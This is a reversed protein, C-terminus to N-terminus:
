FRWSNVLQCSILNWLTINMRCSAMGDFSRLLLQTTPSPPACNSYHTRKFM